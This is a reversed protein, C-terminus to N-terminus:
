GSVMVHNLLIKVMTRKTHTQTQFLNSSHQVIAVTANTIHHMICM